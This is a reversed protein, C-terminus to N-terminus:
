HHHGSNGDIGHPHGHAIEDETADRLRNIEIEFRLSEGALPHNSDLYVAEEDMKVVWFPMVEGEPTELHFAEGVVLNAGEPFASKEVRQPTTTTKEGFADEASLTISLKDGATKGRLADEVKPFINDYGHLYVAPEEQTAVDIVEGSGTTLTYSYIVIKKEAIIESM